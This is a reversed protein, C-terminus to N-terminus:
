KNDKTNFNIYGSGGCICKKFGKRLNTGCPCKKIIKKDVLTKFEKRLEEYFYDMVQSKAYKFDSTRKDMKFGLLDLIKKMIKVSALYIERAIQIKEM